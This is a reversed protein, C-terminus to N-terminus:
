TMYSRVASKLPLMLSKTNRKCVIRQKMTYTLHNDLSRAFKTFVICFAIFSKYFEHLEHNSSKCEEKPNDSNPTVGYHSSLTVIYNSASCYKLRGHMSAPRHIYIYTHLLEELSSFLTKLLHDFM